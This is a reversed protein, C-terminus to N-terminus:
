CASYHSAKRCSGTSLWRQLPSSRGARNEKGDARLRAQQGHLKGSETAASPVSISNDMCQMPSQHDAAVSPTAASPLHSTDSQDGLSTLSSCNLVCQPDDSTGAIRLVGTVDHASSTAQDSAQAAQAAPERRPQQQSSRCLPTDHPPRAMNQQHQRPSQPAPAEAQCHWSTDAPSPGLLQTDHRPQQHQHQQPCRHSSLCARNQSCDGEAAGAPVSTDAALSESCAAAAAADFPGHHGVSSSVSLNSPQSWFGAALRHSAAATRCSSSPAAVAPPQVPLWRHSSDCKAASNDDHSLPAMTQSPIPSDQHSPTGAQMASPMRSGSVCCTHTDPKFAAAVQSPSKLAQGPSEHRLQQPRSIPARTASSIRETVLCGEARGNFNVFLLVQMLLQMLLKGEYEATPNHKFSRLSPM